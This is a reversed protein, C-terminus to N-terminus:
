ATAIPVSLLIVQVMFRKNISNFLKKQMIYIPNNINPYIFSNDNTIENYPNYKRVINKRSFNSENNVKFNDYVM